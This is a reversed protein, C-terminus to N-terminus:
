GDFFGSVFLQHLESFHPVLYFLSDFGPKGFLTKLLNSKFIKLGGGRRM